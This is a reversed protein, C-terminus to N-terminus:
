FRDVTPEFGVKSIFLKFNVSPPTFALEAPEHGESWLHLDKGLAKLLIKLYKKKLIKLLYHM